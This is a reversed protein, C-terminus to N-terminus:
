ISITLNEGKYYYSNLTSDAWNPFIEKNDNYVIIVAKNISMKKGDTTKPNQKIYKKTLHFLKIYALQTETCGRKLYYEEDEDPQNLPLILDHEIGNIQFWHHFAKNPQNWINGEDWADLEKAKKVKSRIHNFLIKNFQKVFEDEPLKMKLLFLEKCNISRLRDETDRKLLLSKTNVVLLRWTEFEELKQYLKSKTKLDKEDVWKNYNRIDSNLSELKEVREDNDDINIELTYPDGYDEHPNFQFKCEGEIISVYGPLVKDIPLLEGIASDKFVKDTKVLQLIIEHINM